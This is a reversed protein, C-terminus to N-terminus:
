GHVRRGEPDIACSASVVVEISQQELPSVAWIKEDHRRHGNQLLALAIPQNLTPSHISATLRGQAALKSGTWPRDCLMAALPIASHGDAPRLGVLQLRDDRQLRPRQLLSSGVFAKGASVMRRLGLDAPTTRGDIETGISLHGKEIRLVDLAELGYPTIGLSAGHEVVREFLLSALGSPVNIEYSLEGSFSVSFVRCPIQGDLKGARVSAFPFAGRGFDFDPSLAQLLQRSNPGAIALSAWHDGVSTLQVDLDSWQLQLLKNMWRWVGAANATTMTVLFHNEGLQAVTGDDWLIGDERLMLAYRLRGPQISDLKNCYIRSLFELSDAGKVDVKGLTSMDVCGVSNRVALVEREVAANMSENAQPFYRSYLWDGSTQFVCGAAEFARQFPTHRLPTMHRGVDAGALAGLSVPSYPPRFTTHGTEAPSAGTLRSIELIANNWSTKGQDTGMGLTTYRKALEVHDYGEDAALELDTRIVDNQLDIFAKDHGDHYGASAPAADIEDLEINDDAQQQLQALARQAQLSGDRACDNGLAIGRCAGSFLAVGIQAGPRLANAAPDFHLRDGLQAGLQANAAWGASMCLLDCSIDRRREGAALCTVGRLRGLGRTASIHERPGLEGAIEIGALQLSQGTTEREIPDAIALMARKGPAVAYRHIYQRVAAALMIGPRDNAPFVLPRQTAGCALLIRRARLRWSVSDVGDAHSELAMVRGHDYQGFALTNCMVRCNKSDALASLAQERWQAAPLGEIDSQEWLTSGGLVADQELLIVSLSSETATLAASLGAPGSGVILLDCSANRRDYLRTDAQTSVCGQGAIRRICKEYVKHWWQQPWMFTKYYFGAALLASAPQLLAGLDNDLSPWCNQSRAELGDELRIETAKLNPVYVKGPMRCALLASPEELGASLIGRPRHYKFSRAVLSVGNALLASALSDGAYGQLSRGNFTFHITTDRDILGGTSLRRPQMM